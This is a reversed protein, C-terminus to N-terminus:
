VPFKDRYERWITVLNIAVRQLPDKTAVMQDLEHPSLVVLSEIDIVSFNNPPEAIGYFASIYSKRGDILDHMKGGLRKLPMDDIFLERSVCRDAAQKPTEGARVITAITGMRGIYVNPLLDNIPITQLVLQGDPTILIVNSSHYIDIYKNLDVRKKQGVVKGKENLIDVPYQSHLM